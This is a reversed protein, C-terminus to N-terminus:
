RAPRPVECVFDEFKGGASRPISAVRTFVIRFPHQLNELMFRGLAGQEDQTLDRDATYRLEIEEFSRQVVRVQLVPALTRYLSQSLRPWLTRGDPLVLMNRTRGVIRRIVPLGRGCACADGMQAYDGIEYRLLVTAFNHLPTLVVRGTEGPACPRGREDLVEMLVDEAMVHHHPVSPCQLAVVGIETAGYLDTVPVGWAGFCAERVDDPLMEGTSRVERLRPLKLGHASFHNALAELNTAYTMLHDPDERVLWDAQAAIDTHVSLMAVPGTEFIGDTTLGWGHDRRKGEPPVQDSDSFYQIIALKGTLDRRHWLHSRLVFARRFINCL